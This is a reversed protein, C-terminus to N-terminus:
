SVHYALQWLHVLRPDLVYDWWLFRRMIRSLRSLWDHGISHYFMRSRIMLWYWQEDDTELSAMAGLVVIWTFLEEQTATPVCYELVLKLQAALRPRVTVCEPIPFLVFDNYIFVALRLAELLTAQPQELDPVPFKSTQCLRLQAHNRALGLSWVTPAGAARRHYQDLAVTTNASLEIAYRLAENGVNDFGSAFESLLDLATDDPVYDPGLVNNDRDRPIAWDHDLAKDLRTAFILDAFLMQDHVNVPLSSLFAYSGQEKVIKVVVNTWGVTRNATGWCDLNQVTALPPPPFRPDTTPGATFSHNALTFAQLVVMVKTSLPIASQLIASMMELSTSAHFRRTALLKERLAGDLRPHYHLWAVVACAIHTHLVYSLQYGSQRRTGYYTLANNNNSLILKPWFTTYVTVHLTYALSNMKYVTLGGMSRIHM